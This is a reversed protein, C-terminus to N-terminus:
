RQRDAATTALEALRTADPLGTLAARASPKACSGVHPRLELTSTPRWGLYRAVLRLHETRTKAQRGYSSRLEIPDIDLQDALRAVAVPPATSVKDPVFGLWPLTCLAV